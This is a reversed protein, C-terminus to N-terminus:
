DILDTLYIRLYKEYDGQTNILAEIVITNTDINKSVYVLSELEGVVSNSGIIINQDIVYTGIYTYSYMEGNKARKFVDIYNQGLELYELYSGRLQIYSVASFILIFLIVAFMRIKSKKVKPKTQVKVNGVKENEQVEQVNQNNNEESM